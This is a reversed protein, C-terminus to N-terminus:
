DRNKSCFSAVKAAFSVAGRQLVVLSNECGVLDREGFVPEGLVLNGSVEYPYTPPIFGFTASM